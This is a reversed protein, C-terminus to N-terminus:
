LLKNVSSNSFACLDHLRGPWKIMVDQFCYKYSSAAQHKPNLSFCSKSNNYDSYHKNPEALKNHMGDITGICQPFENKELIKDAVENVESETTPCKLFNPGVHIVRCIKQSELYRQSFALLVM